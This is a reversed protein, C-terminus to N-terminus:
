DTYICCCGSCFKRRQFFHMHNWWSNIETKYKNIAWKYRWERWVRRFAFIDLKEKSNRDKVPSALATSIRPYLSFLTKRLRKWVSPFKCLPLWSGATGPSSSRGPSWSSCWWSRCLLVLVQDARRSRHLRHQPVSLTDPLVTFFHGHVLWYRLFLSLFVNIPMLPEM